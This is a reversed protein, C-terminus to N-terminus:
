ETKVKLIAALSIMNLCSDSPLVRIGLFCTSKMVVRFLPANALARTFLKCQSLDGFGMEIRRM